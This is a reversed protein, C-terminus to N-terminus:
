RLFSIGEKLAYRVLDAQRHLSLKRMINNRHVHATNRAIKLRRAIEKNCLGEAICQLVERERLSLPCDCQAASRAPSAPGPSKKAARSAGPQPLSGPARGAAFGPPFVCKGQHVQRVAEPLEELHADKLVYGKVGARLANEMLSREDHMSLVIVRSGPDRRLLRRAADIGNLFPMSVDLIFVDPGVDLALELAQRGDSAEGVVRIDPALSAFVSKLGERVVSHDDALLVKIM